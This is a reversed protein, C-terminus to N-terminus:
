DCKAGPFGAKIWDASKTNAPPNVCEAKFSVINELKLEQTKEDWRAVGLANSQIAQHGKGLAFTVEGAPADFKMNELKEIIQLTTPKKNGNAAMAQEAAMKFALIPQSFRFPGQVAPKDFAKRYTEQFWVSLPTKPALQGVAGRGATVVGDPAKNGLRPLVHEALTFVAQSSKFLNRPQAQLFFAELDGGWLSSHILDPKERLLTSIQAGYQGAGLEPFLEGVTQVKPMLQEMSLKFDRWSDQGWSYNQNLGAMTKVNPMKTSVYRALAVNDMTGHAGARFVYKYEAEEFLRPTGCGSFIALAKLQEAIPAIALCNGSGDYGLVADVKEREVMDRYRQIEVEASGAEDVIVFEIPLGGIGKTSYPAPVRGNNLEDILMKGANISATGHADAGPGSLYTVLGVRFKNEDAAAQGAILTALMGAVLGAVRISTM